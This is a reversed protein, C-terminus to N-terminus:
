VFQFDLVSSGCVIKVHHCFVFCSTELKSILYIIEKM